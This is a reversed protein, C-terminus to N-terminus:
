LRISSIIKVSGNLQYFHDKKSREEACIIITLTPWATRICPIIHFINFHELSCEFKCGMIRLGDSKSLREVLSTMINVHSECAALVFKPM